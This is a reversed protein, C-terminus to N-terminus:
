DHIKNGTESLNSFKLNTKDKDIYRIGREPYKGTMYMWALYALKFKQRDITTMLHGKADTYGGVPYNAPIYNSKAKLRTFKGSDPDYLLNEKLKKLSIWPM